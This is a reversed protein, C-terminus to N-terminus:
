ADKYTARSAYSMTPHTASASDSIAIISIRHNNPSVAGPGSYELVKGNKYSITHNIVKAPPVGGKTVLGSLIFHKDLHVKYKRNTATKTTRPSAFVLDGYLAYSPYQLIDGISLAQNGDLSEVILLRMQNFTDTSSGIFNFDFKQRVLTISNGIRAADGLLVGDEAGVSTSLFGGTAYSATTINRAVDSYNVQKNEMTKYVMNELKKIRTNQKSDTNKKRFKKTAKAKGKVAM